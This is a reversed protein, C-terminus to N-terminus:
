QQGTAWILVGTATTAHFTGSSVEIYFAEGRAPVQFNIQSMGEVENPAPGAYLVNALGYQAPKM